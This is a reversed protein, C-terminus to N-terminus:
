WVCAILMATTFVALSALANASWKPTYGTNLLSSADLNKSLNPKTSPSKTNSTVLLEVFSKSILYVNLPYWYKQYGKKDKYSCKERKFNTFVNFHIMMLSTITFVISSKFFSCFFFISYCTIQYEYNKNKDM